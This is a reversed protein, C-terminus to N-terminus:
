KKGVLDIMRSQLESNIDEERDQDNFSCLRHPLSRSEPAKSFYCVNVIITEKKHTQIKDFPSSGFYEQRAEQEKRKKISQKAVITPNLAPLALALRATYMVPRQFTAHSLVQICIIDELHFSADLGTTCQSIQLEGPTRLPCSDGSYTKSFLATSHQQSTDRCPM